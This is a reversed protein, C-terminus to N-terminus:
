FSASSPLLCRFRPCCLMLFSLPFISTTMFSEPRNLTGPVSSFPLGRWIGVHQVMDRKPFGSIHMSFCNMYYGYVYFGRRASLPEFPRMLRDGGGHLAGDVPEQPVWLDLGTSHGTIYMNCDRLLISLMNRFGTIELSQSLFTM